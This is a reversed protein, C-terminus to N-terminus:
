CVFKAGFKALRKGAFDGQAQCKIMTVEQLDKTFSAMMSPKLSM